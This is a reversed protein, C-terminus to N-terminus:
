SKMLPLWLARRFSFLPVGGGGSIPLSNLRVSYCCAVFFLWVHTYAHMLLDHPCMLPGTAQTMTRHIISVCLYQMCILVLTFM